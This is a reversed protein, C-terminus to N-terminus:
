VSVDVSKSSLSSCGQKAAANARRAALDDANKQAKKRFEDKAKDAADAAAEVPNKSSSSSGAQPQQQSKSGLSAEM